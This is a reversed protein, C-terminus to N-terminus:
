VKFYGPQNHKFIWIYQTKYQLQIKKYKSGLSPEHWKIRLFPVMQLHQFINENKKDLLSITCVKKWIIDLLLVSKYCDALDM